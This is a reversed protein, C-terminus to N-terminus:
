VLYNCVLYENSLDMSDGVRVPQVNGAQIQLNQVDQIKGKCGVMITPIAPVITLMLALEFLVTGVWMLPHMDFSIGHFFKRLFNLVIDQVEGPVNVAM